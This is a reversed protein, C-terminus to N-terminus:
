GLPTPTSLATASHAATACRIARRTEVWFTTPEFGVQPLATYRQHGHDHGQAILPVSSHQVATGYHDTTLGYTVMNEWM